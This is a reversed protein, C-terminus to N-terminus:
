WWYFQHGYWSIHASKRNHSISEWIKKEIKDDIMSYVNDDMHSIKNDDVFWGINCQHEYILKNEIYREYPNLKFWLDSLITSFLDYWLLANEIMGYVAKLILVYLVKKGKKYIVFKEYEPNVECMIDVFEGEFKM